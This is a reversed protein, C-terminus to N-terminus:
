MLDLFSWSRPTRRIEGLGGKDFTAIQHDNIHAQVECKLTLPKADTAPDKPIPQFETQSLRM